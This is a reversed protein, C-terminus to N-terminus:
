AGAVRNRLFNYFQQPNSHLGRSEIDRAEKDSIDVQFCIIDGDQIDSQSFVHNPDM